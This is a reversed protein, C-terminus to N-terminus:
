DSEDNAEPQEEAPVFRMSDLETKLRSIEDAVAQPDYVEPSEEAEEAEIEDLISDIIADLEADEEEAEAEVEGEENPSDATDLLLEEVLADFEEDSMEDEDVEGESETETEAEAEAVLEQAEELKEADVREQAAGRMIELIEAPDQKGDLYASRGSPYEWNDIKSKWPSDVPLTELTMKQGLIEVGKTEAELQTKTQKAYAERLQEYAEASFDGGTM